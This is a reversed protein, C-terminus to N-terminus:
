ARRFAVPVRVRHIPKGDNASLEYVDVVGRPAASSSFPVTVSFRGRCGTGCAAHVTRRALVRGDAAVLRLQFTAEFVNATGALHLPSRVSDGVAPWEVLIAPTQAAYDARTQPRRLVIGESSFTTVERGDLLFRVAHVTPFQTATFVVQALRAFMGASGGGSAFRGSLDVSAVGRAISVSRLVSGAPIASGLGARREAASPGRLLLRLAAGAPAASRPVREHAVGLQEGRLLYIAVTRTSASRAADPRVDAAGGAPLTAAAALAFACAVGGRRLVASV